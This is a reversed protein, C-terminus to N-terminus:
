IGSPKAQPFKRQFHLGRLVGNVSRSHNDQVFVADVGADRFDHLNYTEMFMGRDDSYAFPEIIYLGNIDTKIFNFRGM